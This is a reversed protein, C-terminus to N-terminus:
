IPPVRHKLLAQYRPRDIVIHGNLQSRQKFIKRGEKWSGPGTDESPTLTLHRKHTVKIRIRIFDQDGCQWGSVPSPLCPFYTTRILLRLLSSMQFKLVSPYLSLARVPMYIHSYFLIHTHMFQFELM